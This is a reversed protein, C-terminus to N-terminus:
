TTTVYRMVRLLFVEITKDGFPWESSIIHSCVHIPRLNTQLVNQNQDWKKCCTWAWTCGITPWCCTWAAAGWISYCICSYYPRKEIRGILNLAISIMQAINYIFVLMICTRELEAEVQSSQRLDSSCKHHEAYHTWCEEYIM